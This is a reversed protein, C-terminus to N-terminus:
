LTIASRVLDASVDHLSRGADRATGVLSGLAQAPTCRKDNMVVGRAQDIVARSRSGPAGLELTMLAVAATGALMTLARRDAPTFGRVRDTFANLSRVVGDEVPIPVSLSGTVGDADWRGSAAETAAGDGRLRTVSAGVAGPIAQQAITAVADLVAAVDKPVLSTGVSMDIKRLGGRRKRVLHGDLEVYAESIV